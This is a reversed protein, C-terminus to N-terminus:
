DECGLPTPQPPWPQPRQHPQHTQGGDRFVADERGIGSGPSLGEILPHNLPTFKTCLPLAFLIIVRHCRDKHVAAAHPLPTNLLHGSDM